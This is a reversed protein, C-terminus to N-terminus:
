CTGFEMGFAPNDLIPTYDSSDYDDDRSSSTDSMDASSAQPTAQSVEEQPSASTKEACKTKQFMSLDEVTVGLTEMIELVAQVRRTKISQDMASLIDAVNQAKSSNEM